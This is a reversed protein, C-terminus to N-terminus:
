RLYLSRGGEICRILEQAEAAKSSRSLERLRKLCPKGCAIISEGLMLGREADWSLEESQFADVLIDAAEVTGERSLINLIHETAILFPDVEQLREQPREVASTKAFSWLLSKLHGMHNCDNIAQLTEKRIRSRYQVSSENM